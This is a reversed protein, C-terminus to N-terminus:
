CLAFCAVSGGERLRTSAWKGPGWLWCWSVLVCVCVCVCVCVARGLGEGGEDAGPGARPLLLLM